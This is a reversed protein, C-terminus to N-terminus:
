SNPSNSTTNNLSNSRRATILSSLISSSQIPSSSPSSLSLRPNSEGSTILRVTSNTSTQGDICRQIRIRGIRKTMLLNPSTTNEYTFTLPSQASPLLSETSLVQDTSSMSVLNSINIKESVKRESTKTMRRKRAFPDTRRRKRITKTSKQSNSSLNENCIGSSNKKRTQITQQPTVKSLPTTRHSLSSDVPPEKRQRKASSSTSLNQRITDVSSQNTRIAFNLSQARRRLGSALPDFNLCFFKLSKVIESHDDTNELKTDIENTTEPTSPDDKQESINDVSIARKRKRLQCTMSTPVSPNSPVSSPITNSICRSYVLIYADSTKVSEFTTQEIIHDDCRLWEGLVDNYVFAVFHGTNISKGYHVIVGRLRYLCENRSTGNQKSRTSPFSSSPTLQTCYPAMDLYEDFNVHMTIKHSLQRTQRSTPRRLTTQPLSRFRRLVVHLVQPLKSILLRKQAKTGERSPSRVTCTSCQFPTSLAEWQYFHALMETLHCSRRRSSGRVDCLMKESFTLTIFTEDTKTVSLRHCQECLIQSESSFGLLDNIINTDALKNAKIEDTIAALLAELFEQADEMACPEFTPLLRRVAAIMNLPSYVMCKGSWIINFTGHLEYALYCPVRRPQAELAKLLGRGGGKLRTPNHSSAVMPVDSPQELGLSEFSMSCIADCFQPVHSLLQLVCNVYCTNGLNYLGTYGASYLKTQVTKLTTFSSSSTKTSTPTSSQQQQDNNNNNDKLIIVTSNHTPSNLTPNPSSCRLASTASKIPSRLVITPEAM